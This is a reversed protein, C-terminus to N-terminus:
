ERKSLTFRGSSIGEAIADAERVGLHIYGNIKGSVDKTDLWCELADTGDIRIGNIHNDPEGVMIWMPYTFPTEGRERNEPYDVNLIFNQLYLLYKYYGYEDEAGLKLIWKCIVVSLKCLLKRIFVKM